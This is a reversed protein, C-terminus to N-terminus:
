AGPQYHEVGVVPADRHGCRGRGRFIANNLFLMLIAGCGGLAIRAYGSGVAVIEPTAGMLRLLQPAFIFCPIGISFQFPLDSFSLRCEPLRPM